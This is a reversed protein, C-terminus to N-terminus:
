LKDGAKRNQEVIDALRQAVGLVLVASMELAVAVCANLDDLVHHLTQAEIVFGGGTHCNQHVIVVSLNGGGFFRDLPQHILHRVLINRDEHLDLTTVAQRV